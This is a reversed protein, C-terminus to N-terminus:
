RSRLHESIPISVTGSGADDLKIVSVRHFGTVEKVIGVTVDCFTRLDKIRGLQGLAESLFALPELSELPHGPNLGEARHVEKVPLSRSVIARNIDDLTYLQRPHTLLERKKETFEPAEPSQPDAPHMSPDWDYRNRAEDRPPSGLDADDEPDAVLPEFGDVNEQQEPSEAPVSDLSASPSVTVIRSSSAGPESSEDGIEPNIDESSPEPFNVERPASIPYRRDSRREMELVVIRSMDEPNNLAPRHAACWCRWNPRSGDKFLKSQGNLAFIETDSFAVEVDNPHQDYSSGTIFAVQHWLEQM